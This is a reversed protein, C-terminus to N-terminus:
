LPFDDRQDTRGVSWGKLRCDMWVPHGWALSVCPLYQTHATSHCGSKGYGNCISDCSLRTSRLNHTLGGSLRAICSTCRKRCSVYHCVLCWEWVRITTHAETLSWVIIRSQVFFACRKCQVILAKSWADVANGHEVCSLTCAFM